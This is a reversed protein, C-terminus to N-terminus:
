WREQLTVTWTQDEGGSLVFNDITGTLTDAKEAPTAGGSFYATLSADASFHGSTGESTGDTEFTKHLTSARRAAKTSPSAASRPLPAARTLRLIPSPRSRMTPTLAAPM